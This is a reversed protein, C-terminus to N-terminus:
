SEIQQTVDSIWYKKYGKSFLHRASNKKIRGRIYQMQMRLTNDFALKAELISKFFFFPYSSCDDCLFFITDKLNKM